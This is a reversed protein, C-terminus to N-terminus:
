PYTSAWQDGRPDFRSPVRLARPTFHCSLLHYMRSVTCCSAGASAKELSPPLKKICETTKSVSPVCPSPEFKNLCTRTPTQTQPTAGPKQLRAFRQCPARRRFPGGLYPLTLCYPAQQRCAPEVEARSPTQIQDPRPCSGRRLSANTDRRRLDLWDRLESWGQM